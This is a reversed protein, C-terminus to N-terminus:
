RCSLRCRRRFTLLLCPPYETESATVFSGSATQGWPRHPHSRDCTVALAQLEPLSTWLMQRKDRDGGHMCVDYALHLCHPKLEVFEPIMWMYSRLPNEVCFHTPLDHKAVQHRLWTCFNATRVYIRNASDVRSQDTESLGPLGTPHLESRLQPPGRGRRVPIERARSATGCPPAIHVLLTAHSMVMRQLFSWSSDYRLDLSLTPVMPQHRNGGHDIALVQFGLSRFAAPEANPLCFGLETLLKRNQANLRSAGQLCYAILVVRRDPSPLGHNVHRADFAVPGETFPIIEGCLTREGVTHLEGDPKELFLEGGSFSTLPIVLNPVCANRSDRHLSNQSGDLVDAKGSSAGLLPQLLCVVDFMEMVKPLHEDVPRKGGSPQIGERTLDRLESFLKKDAAVLQSWGPRQYGPPAEQMKARRLRDSWQQMLSYEVINAQDLALSRRQLAQLVHVESVTSAKEEADKTEVKLRGSAEDVTFRTDKRRDSGVEQERSTCVEWSLYRLENSEYCAVAKDVLAESPESQNKILVGVLKTRQKEYREAREPQTLRRSAPEESKEIRQKLESTVVAYAEHYLARFSAQVGLEAGRSLMTKLAAMLPAEDSQGPTFSSIFALQRLSSVASKVKAADDKPLGSADVRANFVSQSDSYSSAMTVLNCRGTCAAPRPGQCFYSKLAGEHRLIDFCTKGGEM